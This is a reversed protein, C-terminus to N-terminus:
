LIKLIKKGLFDQKRRWHLLQKFVTVFILFSSFLTMKQDKKKSTISTFLALISGTSKNKFVNRRFWSNEPMIPRIQAIITIFTFNSINEGHDDFTLLILFHSIRTKNKTAM